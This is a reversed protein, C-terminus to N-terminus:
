GHPGAGRRSLARLTVWWHIAFQETRHKQTPASSPGKQRDGAPATAGPCAGDAWSAASIWPKQLACVAGYLYGRWTSNTASSGFVMEPLILARDCQRKLFLPV